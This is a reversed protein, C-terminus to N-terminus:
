HTRNTTKINQCSFSSDYHKNVYLWSKISIDSKKAYFLQFFPCFNNLVWMVSIIHQDNYRANISYKIHAHYKYMSYKTYDENEGNKKKLYSFQSKSLNFSKDLTVRPAM